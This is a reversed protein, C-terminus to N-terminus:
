NTSAVFFGEALRGLPLGAEAATTEAWSRLRDELDDMHATQSTHAKLAEVKKAFTDTIDVFQNRPEKAMVWVESVTWPELGAKLLEPFAFENRADPYIAQIAIEGAALHDPHASFIRNWNREPSQIVMRQPRIKRIVGVVEGRLSISPMLHGDAHNLFTVSKVGLVNSAAQQERQRLPGMQDRPTDDFGGQDGNTLVCLHVDIGAEGWAAITGAAGFDADDPHATVILIREIENDPIASM